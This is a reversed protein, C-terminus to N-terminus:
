RRHDQNIGVVVHSILDMASATFALEMAESIYECLGMIVAHLIEAHTAGYIVRDCGGFSLQSFTNTILLPSYEEFEDKTKGIINANQHFYYILDRGIYTNDGDLPHIDCDRCLSNM